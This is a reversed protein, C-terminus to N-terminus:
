VYVWGEVAARGDALLGAHDCAAFLAASSLLILSDIADGEQDEVAAQTAEAAMSIGEDRKIRGLIERRRERSQASPGKYGAHPWGLRRLTSSPCGEGVWVRRELLRPAEAASVGALGMPLVVVREDKSLPRLLSVMAHWTIKFLRLNTPAMPTLFRRDVERRLERRSVERCARRWDRPSDFSALWDLAAPWAPAVGHLALLDVPLGCPADILWVHRRGDAGSGAILAELQGHSFGGRTTAPEGPVLTAVWTKRQHKEAGSLDIGHLVMDPRTMIM